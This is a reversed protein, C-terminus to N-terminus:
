PSPCGECITVTYMFSMPFFGVVHDPQGSGGEATLLCAPRADDRGGQDFTGVRWTDINETGDPTTDEAFINLFFPFGEPAGVLCNEQKASFAIRWSDTKKGKASRPLSFSIDMEQFPRVKIDESDGTPDMDEVHVLVDDPGALADFVDHELLAAQVLASCSGPPSGPPTRFDNGDPDFRPFPCEVIGLLLNQTDTGFRADKVCDGAPNPTGNQDNCDVLDGFNIFLKRVGKPRLIMFIGGGLVATIGEKEGDHKYPRPIPNGTMPDFEDHDSQISDPIPNGSGDLIFDDFTVVLPINTTPEPDPEPDGGGCDANLNPDSDDCDIGAPPDSNDRICPTNDKVFCDGDRDCREPLITPWDPFETGDGAVCVGQAEVPSMSFVLALSLASFILVWRKKEM